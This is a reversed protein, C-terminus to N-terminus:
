INGHERLYDGLKHYHKITHETLSTNCDLCLIGRVKGTDHCHDTQFGRGKSTAASCIKCVRGQADFEAEWQAANIGYNRRLHGCRLNKQSRAPNAARWRRVKERVKERNRDAYQREYERQRARKEEPTM